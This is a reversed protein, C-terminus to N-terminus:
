RSFLSELNKRHRPTLRLGNQIYREFTGYEREAAAFFAELYSPRAELFSMLIEREDATMGVSLEAAEASTDAAHLRNTLLYDDMVQDMDFGAAVMMAACMVGTRDKGNVCHVLAPAGEDAIGRLAAGILPYELAFREYNRIMREEPKGYRGIVGAALRKKADKRRGETSPELAVTKTGIPYPQPRSAAEFQNRIDYVSRIGLLHTLAYLEEVTAQFLDGSRLLKAGALPGGGIARAHFGGFSEAGKAEISLTPNLPAEDVQGAVTEAPLAEFAFSTTVHSLEGAGNVTKAHLLYVGAQQPTYSFRWSVGVDPVAGRTPYETWSAGGDLSFRVAAIANEFDDAYGVFEIPEGVHHEAAIPPTDAVNTM